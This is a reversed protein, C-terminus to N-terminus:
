NGEIVGSPGIIGCLSQSSVGGMQVPNIKNQKGKGYM